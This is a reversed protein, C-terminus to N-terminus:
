LLKKMFCLISFTVLHYYGKSLRLRCNENSHINHWTYCCHCSYFDLVLSPTYTNLFLPSFCM